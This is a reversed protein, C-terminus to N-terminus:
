SKELFQVRTEVSTFEPGGDLALGEPTGYTMFAHPLYRILGIAGGTSRSIIPWNLYRDVIM